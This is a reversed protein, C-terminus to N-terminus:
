RERVYALFTAVAGVWVLLVPLWGTWAFLWWGGLDVNAPVVVLTRLYVWTVTLAVGIRFVVDVARYTRLMHGHGHGWNKM